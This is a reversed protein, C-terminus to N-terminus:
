NGELTAIAAKRLILATEQAAEEITDAAEILHHATFSRAAAATDAPDFDDIETMLVNLRDQAQRYPSDPLKM